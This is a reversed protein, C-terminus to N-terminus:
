GGARACMSKRSRASRACRRRTSIARRDSQAPQTLVILRTRPTIQREVEEPDVRFDDEMRREFRRVTAGLYKLTSVLLEYTPHEILVEDGPDLTAAMALHNAM